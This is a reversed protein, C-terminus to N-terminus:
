KTFTLTVLDVIARLFFYSRSLPRNAIAKTLESKAFSRTRVRTDAHDGM